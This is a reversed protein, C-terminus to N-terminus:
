AYAMCVDACASCVKMNALVRCAQHYKYSKTLLSISLSRSLSNTHKNTYMNCICLSLLPILNATLAILLWYSLILDNAQSLGWALILAMDSSSYDCRAGRPIGRSQNACRECPRTRTGCWHVRGRISRSCLLCLFFVFVYVFVWCVAWCYQVYGSWGVKFACM